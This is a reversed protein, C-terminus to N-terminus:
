GPWRGAAGINSPAILRKLSVLQCSLRRRLRRPVSLVLVWAFALPIPRYRLSARFAARAETLRGADVSDRGIMYLDEALVSRALSRDVEDAYRRHVLHTSRRMHLFDATINNEHRRYGVMVRPDYYVVSGAKLARMWYEYDDANFRQLGDGNRVQEVFPGLREFLDRRIVATPACLTNGGFLHGLLAGSALVGEGPPRPHEGQELGFVSAHGCAIDVEPHAALTEAQWELKRPKWVDDAGCMAVYDGNAAGFATNFAAPCGGNERSILRISRGFRSLERATGDTSGDDVVVVEDPPRTQNLLSEVAEAIWRESNYAAVVASIRM